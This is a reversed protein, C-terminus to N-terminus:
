ILLAALVTRLSPRLRRLGLRRHCAVNTKRVSLLAHGLYGTTAAPDLRRLPHFSARSPPRTIGDRRGPQCPPSRGAKVGRSSSPAVPGAPRPVSQLRATLEEEAALVLDADLRNLEELEALLGSGCESRFEELRESLSPQRTSRVNQAAYSLDLQPFRPRFQHEALIM